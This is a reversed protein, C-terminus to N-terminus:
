FSFGSGILWEGERIENFSYEIRFANYPLFLFTLGFGWGSDFNNYSLKENNYFTTGTDGFASLFIGIRTSTLRKPLLPLDISFNWESVIPYVAELSTLLYNNGERDDDKHGRVIESFGLFSLDYSPVTHGSTHRGTFRFKLTFKEWLPFYKRFDVRFLNYSVDKLGFGKHLWDVQTFIGGRAYQSLDRSNHVYTIGAAPIYDETEGSATFGETYGDPPKLYYFNTNLYVANFIDLRKGFRLEGGIVKNQFYDGYRRRAKISNNGIRSYYLSFNMSLNDAFPLYPNFYNILYTPNYGFTAILRITENRGRFNKYLVNVGYSADALRNNNIKFVPYPYIYWSEHLSIVVINLSDHRVPFVDVKSFLGLSFVRESNFKLIKSDVSDGKSFSLERLIIFDKTIKNGELAISDVLVKSYEPISLTDSYESLDAAKSYCNVPSIYFFAAWLLFPFSFVIGRKWFENIKNLSKM